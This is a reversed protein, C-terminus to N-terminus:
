SVTILNKGGDKSRYMSVDASQLLGKLDSADEPFSAIGFSATVRVNHGEEKLFGSRAISKRIGEVMRLAQEKGTGPLVIVYEDGGYRVLFDDEGLHEGIVQAVERLVKSGMPHGFTDVIRKFNDMDLFVLSTMRGSAILRELEQHLFRSNYFGSVDDTVVLKEIKEHNAANNIAIAVFDSLIQLIPLFPKEFLQQNEPNVIQLVGIVRGGLKLPLTILSHTKFGTRSDFRGDFHPESGADPVLVPEGTEAVMGALGQGVKLHLGELSRGKLGVVVEFRLEEKEEDVIYLTWNMARILQSLRNLIIRLIEERDLTSTVAKGLEVCAMLQRTLDDM